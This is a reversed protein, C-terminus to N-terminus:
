ADGVEEVDGVDAKIRDALEPAMAADAVFDHLSAERLDDVSTYGSQYLTMAVSWTVPDGAADAFEVIAEAKKIQDSIVRDVADGLPAAGAQALREIEADVDFRDADIAVAAQQATVLKGFAEDSQLLDCLCESEADSIDKTQRADHAIQRAETAVQRDDM